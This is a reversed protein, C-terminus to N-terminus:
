KFKILRISSVIISRIVVIVMVMRIVIVFYCRIVCVGVSYFSMVM